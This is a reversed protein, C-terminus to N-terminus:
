CLRAYRPPHASLYEPATDTLLEFTNLGLLDVVFPRGGIKMVLMPATGVPNEVVEATRPVEAQRANNPTFAIQRQAFRAKMRELTPEHTVMPVGAAEAACEVTIDDATPGLGGSVLVVDCRAGLTRLAEVIDKRVDGVVTIGRAKEGLAVLRATFYRSNTDATLGALLEDGTCLAEIHM